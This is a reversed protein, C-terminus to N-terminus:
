FTPIPPLADPATGKAFVRDAAPVSPDGAPAHLCDADPCTAIADSTAVPLQPTGAHETHLWLLGALGIVMMSAALTRATSARRAGERDIQERYM